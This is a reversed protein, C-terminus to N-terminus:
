RDGNKLKISDVRAGNVLTGNTSGLDTLVAEPADHEVDTGPSMLTTIKAHYRSCATDGLAIECCEDRGLTVESKTIEYRGHLNPGDLVVLVLQPRRSQEPDDAFDRVLSITM